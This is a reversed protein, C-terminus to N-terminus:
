NLKKLLFDRYNWATIIIYNPKYKKLFSQNVIKIGTNPVFKNQKLKTDDIVYKINSDNIKFFNLFVTTKAAAGFCVIKSSNNKLFFNNVNKKIIKIKKQFQFKQIQKKSIPLKTLNEKIYFRISGGHLKLYKTKYAFLGCRLLLNNFTQKDFYFFHEHYIMDFLANKFLKSSDQLEICIEGNESLLNKMEKLISIMNPNHAMVNNAIILDFNGFNNKIFKSSHANFFDKLTKIGYSRSIKTMNNSPDIGLCFFEDKLYKLLYGDNSGVELIKISKNKYKKKIEESFSLANDNLDKSVSSSYFYQSYLDDLSINVNHQYTGCKKCACFKLEYLKKRESKNKCLNNALPQKGLDLILELNGKCIRCKKIM